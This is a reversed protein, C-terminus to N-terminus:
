GVQFQAAFFGGWGGWEQGQHPLTRLYGEPTVVGAMGCVDDPLIPSVTVNHHRGLFTTILDHGEEPQLSYTCFVLRGGPRVAHISNRLISKQLTAMTTVDRNSKTLAIDQHRRLTGTATCPADVLVAGFLTGPPWETADAIITEAFVKLRKLNEKLRKMREASRDASVVGM